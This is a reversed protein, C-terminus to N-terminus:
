VLGEVPMFEESATIGGSPLHRTPWASQFRPNARCMAFPQLHMGAVVPSALLTCLRDNQLGAWTAGWTLMVCLSFLCIHGQRNSLGKKQKSSRGDCILM